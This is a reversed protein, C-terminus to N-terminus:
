IPAMGARKTWYYVYIHDGAACYRCISSKRRTALNCACVLHGKGTLVHPELTRLCQCDKADM